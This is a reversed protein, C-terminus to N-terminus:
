SSGPRELGQLMSVFENIGPVIVVSRGRALATLGDSAGGGLMLTVTPPLRRRIEEIEAELADAEPVFVASLAVARAGTWIAAQALEDAPLNPGLYVAEWGASEAAAAALLAGMEHYEGAPTGIVVRPRGNERNSSSIIWDLVRRMGVSALHEHAPRLTGDHWLEGVERLFPAAVDRLYRVTGFALAARRLVRDLRYQDLRRVAEIAEETFTKASPARDGAARSVSVAARAEDDERAMAALEETALDVVRGISRGADTVRSLLALREIDHDSYLRHGGETREPRVAGYRSEWARLLDPGLGTRESVVRIPHRAVASPEATSDPM